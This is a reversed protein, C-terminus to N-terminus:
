VVLLVPPVPGDPVALNCGQDVRDVRHRNVLLSYLHFKSATPEAAPPFLPQQFDAFSYKETKLEKLLPYIACRTQPVLWKEDQRRIEAKLRVGQYCGVILKNYPNGATYGGIM